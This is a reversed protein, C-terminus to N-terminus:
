WSLRHAYVVYASLLFFTTAPISKYLPDRVKLHMTIAGGMLVVLTAGAVLAMPAYWIGVILLTGSTLKLTRIVGCFWAPLGYVEFEEAMTKAEGGRARQPKDYRFLWVDFMALAIFIQAITPAFDM